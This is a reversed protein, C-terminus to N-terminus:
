LHGAENEAFYEKVQGCIIHMLRTRAEISAWAIHPTIVLRTSDKFNALPNDAAMPEQCLVDLGAAAIEKQTLAEALDAEVVIPGRGTNLFIATPKMKQFAAADMLNKTHENLPAHVSVIDSTRLLTDFDVQAYGAQAPSGSASYYIVNCGFARALDAVRRGIAGLGIFGWTRGCLEHFVNAFHTFSADAIYKGSKVYEDYYAMKEWLFFLLAFTHLAM